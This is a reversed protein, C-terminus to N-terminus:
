DTESLRRMLYAFEVVAALTFSGAAVWMGPLKLWVGIVLLAGHSAINVVMGHYVAQSRGIAVLLGRAWSGLATILPLPVGIGVGTRVLVWLDPPAKIVNKLYLDMAPTFVILATAGSSVIGVIWAFRRLSGQSEPRRAQSVTIEQL